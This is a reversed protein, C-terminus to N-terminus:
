EGQPQPGPPAILALIQRAQYRQKSNGGRALNQLTRSSALRATLESRIRTADSWPLEDLTLLVWELVGPEGLLDRSERIVETLVIHRLTKQSRLDLLESSSIHTLYDQLQRECLLIAERSETDFRKSELLQAAHTLGVSDSSKMLLTAAKARVVLDGKAGVSRLALYLDSEPDIPRRALADLVASQEAASGALLSRAAEGDDTARLRGLEGDIRRSRGRLYSLCNLWTPWVRPDDSLLNEHKRGCIEAAKLILLAEADDCVQSSSPRIADSLLGNLAQVLARANSTSEEFMLRCLARIVYEVRSGDELTDLVLAIPRRDAPPRDVPGQALASIIKRSLGDSVSLLALMARTPMTQVADLTLKACVIKEVSPRHCQARVCAAMLWWDAWPLSLIYLADSRNLPPLQDAFAETLGPRQLQAFCEAVKRLAIRSLGTLAESLTKALYLRAEHWREEASLLCGCAFEILEDHDAFQEVVAALSHWGFDGSLLVHRTLTPGHDFTVEQFLRTVHFSARKKFLYAIAQAALEGNSRIHEYMAEHILDAEAIFHGAADPEQLLWLAVETCASESGQTEGSRMLHKLANLLQLQGQRGLAGHHFRLLGVILVPLAPLCAPDQSLELATSMWVEALHSTRALLQVTQDRTFAECRELLASRFKPQSAVLEPLVRLVNDLDATELWRRIHEEIDAPIMGTAAGARTILEGLLFHNHRVPRFFEAERRGDASLTGLQASWSTPEEGRVAYSAVILSVAQPTIELSSRHMEILHLRDKGIVHDNFKRASNIEQDLLEQAARAAKQVHNLWTEITQVLSEHSLEFVDRHGQVERVLRCRHILRHTVETVLQPGLRTRAAIQELSLLDKTKESTVLASLVTRAAKDLDKPMAELAKEFHSALIGSTRGLERYAALTMMRQGEDKRLVQDCVIQLHAPPVGTPSLDDLMADVLGEEVRIGCLEAPRMIAERAQDRTLDDLRWTHAIIGVVTKELEALRPLFDERIVILFRTVGEPDCLCSELSAAFHELVQPGLKIFAEEFQDICIIQPRPDSAHARRLVQSLSTSPNEDVSIGTQAALDRAISDVPDTGCRTYSACFGHERELFPLSGALVLSTKGVGSRGCLVTVRRPATLIEATLKWIDTERGFFRVADERIYFDLYNYPRTGSLPARAPPPLPTAHVASVGQDLAQLLEAPPMDVGIPKWRSWFNDDCTAGAVFLEGDELMRHRTICHFLRRFRPDRLDCGLLLIARREFRLGQTLYSIREFVGQFDQRTLILGTGFRGSGGVLFLHRRGPELERVAKSDDAAITKYPNSASILATELVPDPFLSVVTSIPLRALCQYPATAAGSLTSLKRIVRGRFEERGLQKALRSGTDLLDASELGSERSLATALTDRSIAVTPDLVDDLVVVLRGRRALQTLESVRDPSQVDLGAQPVTAPTKILRLRELILATIEKATQNRVDLVIDTWFLGDVKGEEFQLPLVRLRAAEPSGAERM